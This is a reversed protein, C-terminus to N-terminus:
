NNFINPVRKIQNSKISNEGQNKKKYFFDFGEKEAYFDYNFKFMKNLKFRQEEDL